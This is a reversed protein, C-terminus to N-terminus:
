GKKGKKAPRSSVLGEYYLILDNLGFDDRGIGSYVARIEALDEATDVSLKLDAYPGEYNLELALSANRILWPTVHERDSAAKAEWYAASLLGYSFAETDYGDPYPQKGRNTAFEAGAQQFLEVVEGSVQPDLCPCDATVRVIVDAKLNMAVDWYRSLVDNEDSNGGRHVPIGHLQCWDVIRRDEESFSTAIVTEDVGPIRSARQYVHWLTPKDNILEFVKAPFRASGMRAQIICITRGM